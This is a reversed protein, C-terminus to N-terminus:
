KAQQENELAKETIEKYLEIGRLFLDHLDPQDDVLHKNQQTDTMVEELFELDLESLTQGQDVNKKIDLLRPLRQEEFRELLVQRIGQEKSSESM